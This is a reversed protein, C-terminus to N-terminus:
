VRWEYLELHNLGAVPIQGEAQRGHAIDMFQRRFDCRIIFVMMM